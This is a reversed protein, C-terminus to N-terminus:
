FFIVSSHTQTASVVPLRASSSFIPDRRIVALYLLESKNFSRITFPLKKPFVLLIYLFM